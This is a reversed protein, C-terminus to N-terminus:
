IVFFVLLSRKNTLFIHVLDPEAKSLCASEMQRLFYFDEGHSLAFAETLVAM